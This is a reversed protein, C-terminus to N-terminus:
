EESGFEEELQKKMEEQERVLDFRITSNNLDFPMYGFACRQQQNISMCCEVCILRNYHSTGYQTVAVIEECGCWDCSHKRDFVLKDM